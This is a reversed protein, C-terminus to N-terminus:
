QDGEVQKRRLWKCFRGFVYALWIIVVGMLSGLCFHSAQVTSYAGTGWLLAAVAIHLLLTFLSANILVNILNFTPISNM